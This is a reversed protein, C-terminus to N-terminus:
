VREPVFLTPPQVSYDDFWVKLAQQGQTAFKASVLVVFLGTRMRSHSSRQFTKRAMRIYSPSTSLPGSTEEGTFTRAKVDLAKLGVKNRLAVFTVANYAGAPVHEPDLGMIPADSAADPKSGRCWRDCLEKMELHKKPDASLEAATFWEFKATSSCGGRTMIGSTHFTASFDSAQGEVTGNTGKSYVGYQGARANLTPGALAPLAALAFTVFTSVFM